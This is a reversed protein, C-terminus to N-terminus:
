GFTSLIKTGVKEVDENAMAPHLPLSLCRQYYSEAVPCDGWGTAYNKIYYPQTHVPIYHVQSQLGQERLHKIYSGRDIGVEPFSFLPVYLHFNSLCDEAEQPISLNAANALKTNYQEVIERRRKMFLPLKELQSLGLVCQIDTIRYNYGLEIQEYYWPQDSREPADFNQFEAEESTIGHSRLRRLRQWLEHDNTIVMGGEGTTIHKVPHFSMITMDSYHCSGVPRDQYFSGLAHSADEIIYPRQGYKKKHEETLEKIAQMDCSQGAFHVPIIVKTQLTMKEAIRGPAINYTASDIDAFVPKAGCYVLCNASAVFTNPSTIGEDGPGIELALCAIHLASTGSNVAVAYRAGTFDCIAQEFEEIKEGQTLHSTRLLNGVNQIDDETLCQRGYPLTPIKPYYSQITKPKIKEPIREIYHQHFALLCEEISPLESKLAKSLKNVNLSLNKARQATFHFQDVSIPEILDQSFSFSKAIKLGFEYKSIATRSACNFVGSLDLALLEKIVRALEFTYISSFIVDEFGHIKHGLSLEHFFWESLSYKDQINWGFINTRLVTGHPHELIHAEGALKTKGYQNLPNTRDEESFDGKEGDYVLDTSIYILKAQSGALAKTMIRTGRVNIERALDPDAECLEVDTLSACHIVADPQILEFLEAIDRESRLDAFRTRVGRIFVPHRHFLGVIDFKDKLCYALNNGLLGSVGTIILQPRKNGSLKM